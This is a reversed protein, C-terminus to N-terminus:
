QARWSSLEWLVIPVIDRSNMVGGPVTSMSVDLRDLSERTWGMSPGFMLWADPPPALTRIDEGVNPTFAVFPGAQASFFESLTGYRKFGGVGKFGDPTNDIYAAETIGMATSLLALSELQSPLIGVVNYQEIHVLLKM